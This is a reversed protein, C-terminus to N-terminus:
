GAQRLAWSSSSHVQLTGPTYMCHISFKECEVTTVKQRTQIKTWDLGVSLSAYSGVTCICLHALFTDIMHSKTTFNHTYITQELAMHKCLITHYPIIQLINQM